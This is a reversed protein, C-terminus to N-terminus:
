ADPRSLKQRACLGGPAADFSPSIRRLKNLATAIAWLILAFSGLFLAAMGVAVAVRWFLSYPASWVSLTYAGCFAFLLSGLFIRLFAAFAALAAEGVSLTPKFSHPIAFREYKAQV